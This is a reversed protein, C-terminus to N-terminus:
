GGVRILETLAHVGTSPNRNPDRLAAATKQLAQAREVAVEYGPHMKAFDLLKDYKPMFVKVARRLEHRHIQETQERFHLLAWLEFCPNSVALKVGSRNALDLAETLHPHDDVDVVCWVDDFKLDDDHKQKAAAQAQDALGIARKVVSLPVGAAEDIEVHVLRNKFEFQLAQFYRPETVKGECVVLIRHKPERKAPNRGPRRERDRFRREM